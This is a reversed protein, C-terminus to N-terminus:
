RLDRTAGGKARLETRNPASSGEPQGRTDTCLGCDEGVLSIPSAAYARIMGLEDFATSARSTHTSINSKRMRVLGCRLLLRPRRPSVGLSARAREARSGCTPRVILDSASSQSHSAEFAVHITSRNSRRPRASRRGTGPSRRTRCTTNVAFPRVVFVSSM